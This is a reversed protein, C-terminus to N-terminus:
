DADTGHGHDHSLEQELKTNLAEQMLLPIWNPDLADIADWVDRGLDIKGAQFAMLPHSNIANARDLLGSATVIRWLVRRGSETALVAAWDARALPSGLLTADKPKPM